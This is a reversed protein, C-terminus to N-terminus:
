KKNLMKNKISCCISRGAMIGGLIAVLYKARTEASLQSFGNLLAASAFVYVTKDEPGERTRRKAIQVIHGHLAGPIAGDRRLERRVTLIWTGDGQCPSLLPEVSHYQQHGAYIYVLALEIYKGEWSGFAPM